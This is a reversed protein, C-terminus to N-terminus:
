SREDISIIIMSDIKNQIKLDCSKSLSKIGMSNSETNNILKIAMCFKIVSIINSTKLSVITSCSPINPMVNITRIEPMAFDEM